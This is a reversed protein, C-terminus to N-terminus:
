QIVFRSLRKMMFEEDGAKFGVIIMRPFKKGTNMVVIAGREEEVREAPIGMFTMESRAADDGPLSPTNTETIYMCRNGSCVTHFLADIGESTEVSEISSATLEFALGKLEKQEDSCGVLAATFLLTILFSVLSRLAM